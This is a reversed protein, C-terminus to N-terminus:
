NGKIMTNKDYGEENFNKMWTSLFKRAKQKDLGFDKELYPTAGYMNTVGSDRLDNLYNFYEIEDQSIPREENIINEIVKRLQGETLKVIKKM